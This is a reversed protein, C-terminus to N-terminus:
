AIELICIWLFAAMFGLPAIDCAWVGLVVSFYYQWAGSRACFLLFFRRVDLPEATRGLLSLVLTYCCKLEEEAQECV